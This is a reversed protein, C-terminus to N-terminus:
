YRKVDFNVGYLNGILPISQVAKAKSQKYANVIEKAMLSCLGDLKNTDEPTTQRIKLRRAAFDVLYEETTVPLKSHTTTYQGVTVFDNIAPATIFPTSSITCVGTGSNYNSIPINYAKVIGINSSICLFQASQLAALNQHSAVSTVSATDITFATINTSTNTVASLSGRRFDMRDLTRQYTVRISGRTNRPPPVLEVGENKFIWSYPDGSTPYNNVDLDAQQFIEVFNKEQADFSYEVKRVSLNLYLNGSLTYRTTGGIVPFVESDYFMQPYLSTIQRELSFQAYNLYRLIDSDRIGRASTSTVRDNALQTDGRVDDLIDGVYRSYQTTM